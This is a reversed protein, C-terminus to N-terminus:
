PSIYDAYRFYDFMQKIMDTASICIAGTSIGNLVKWDMTRSLTQVGFLVITRAFAGYFSNRAEEYIVKDSMWSPKIEDSSLKPITIKEINELPNVIEFDSFKSEPLIFEAIKYISNIGFEYSDQALSEYIKSFKEGDPNYAFLRLHHFDALDSKIPMIIFDAKTKDCILHMLNKDGSELESDEIKLNASVVTINENIYNKLYSSIEKNEPCVCVTIGDKAAVSFLSVIM